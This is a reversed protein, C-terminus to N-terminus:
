MQRLRPDLLDRLTDGVLNVSLVVLLIAVGPFTSIWWASALVARGDAVMVGWSPTPPPIGAGLFSLAAELVIIRGVQLTSLVILSNLINPLIHRLMLRGSPCGVARAAAVFDRAKVSLVEGRAQRAYQGWLLFAVVVVVNTLSPGWVVALVIAVLYTHIALTMDTVRMIVSDVWGGHYGALLGLGTGIVGGIGIGVVSVLLSIRAGYLLRSLIDRGLHDTGLPYATHGGAVWVPPTRKLRLSTTTPAHPALLPALLGALLFLGLLVVPFLRVGQKHVARALRATSGPWADRARSPAVRRQVGKTMQARSPNM